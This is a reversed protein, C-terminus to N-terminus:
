ELIAAHTDADTHSRARGTEQVDAAHASEEEVPEERAPAPALAQQPDLVRVRAPLHRLRHLLDLARQAPEPEVPVAGDGELEVPVLAAVGLRAPEAPRPGG